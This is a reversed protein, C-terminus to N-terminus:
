APSRFLGVEATGFYNQSQSKFFSNIADGTKGTTTTKIVEEISDQVVFCSKSFSGAGSAKFLLGDANVFYVFHSNRFVIKSLSVRVKKKMGVVVM